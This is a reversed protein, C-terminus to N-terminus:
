FNLNFITLFANEYLYYWEILLQKRVFDQFIWVLLIIMIIIKSVWHKYYDCNPLGQRGKKDKLYSWDKPYSFLVLNVFDWTISQSFLRKNHKDFQLKQIWNEFISMHKM